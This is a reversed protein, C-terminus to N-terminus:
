SDDSGHTGEWEEFAAHKRLYDEIDGLLRAREISGLYWIVGACVLALVFGMLLNVRLPSM